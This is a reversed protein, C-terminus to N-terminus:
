EIKLEDSSVFQREGNPYEVMLGRVYIDNTNCTDDVHGANRYLTLDVYDYASFDFNTFRDYITYTVKMAPITGSYTVGPLMQLLYMLVPKALWPKTNTGLSWPDIHVATRMECATATKNSVLFMITANGSVYSGPRGITFRISNVFDKGPNELAQLRSNHEGISAVANAIESTNNTIGTVNTAIDSANGDVETRLAEFNANVEAAKAPEGANFSHPVGPLSGAFAPSMIIVVSFILIYTCGTLIKM